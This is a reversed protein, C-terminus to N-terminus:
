GPPITAKKAEEHALARCPDTGTKRLDDASPVCTLDPTVGKGELDEGGPFVVRAETVQVGYPVVAEVGIREMLFRCATVRGATRDGIITARRTRQFHRAFMEAASATQSDVLVFMPGKLAPTRPSVKLTEKKKRADLEAITDEREAFYGAVWALTDLRGGSNGRLDVIVAKASKIEKVLGHVFSGDTAFSTLGLYSV